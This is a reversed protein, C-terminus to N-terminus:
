EKGGENTLTLFVDDMTGHRFEFDIIETEYKKLLKLASQSSDTRINVESDKTSVIELGEQLEEALVIPHKAVIRLTDASYRARLIQPTDHAIIVGKNIVYVDDAQEAEEMYHTTLFVTLGTKKQLDTIAAWVDERSKPDLGTTPEDLFLLEPTHVLARAIDARRRQGGSLKGYKRDLFDTLGIIQALENIRKSIDEIKYFAARVKLNERVSLSPDLLSSQFVVGISRRIHADDKGLRFGAIIAEGSTPKLSTTLMNITTSKGAGNTGLFALLTGKKVKLSISDVALVDQYSKTLNTVDIIPKSM